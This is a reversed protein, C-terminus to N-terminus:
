KAAEGNISFELNKMEKKLYYRNSVILNSKIIKGGVLSGWVSLCHRLTTKNRARFVVLGETTQVHSCKKNSFNNVCSKVAPCAVTAIM